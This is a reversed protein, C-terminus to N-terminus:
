SKRFLRRSFHIPLYIASRIAANHWINGAESWQVKKDVCVSTLTPEQGSADFYAALNRLTDFWFKDEAKHGFGLRFSAEYLPDSGRVLAQIQIVTVGGADSADPARGDASASFTIMGAFMHGQPTMFSFSEDDAYIVRVGTSLKAGGPMTLNLVAVEGPRVGQLPGYFNNGKPWFSPFNAKWAAIVQQPTVATDQLRIRYTKQWLQGFGQLPSMPRRGQVNLNMAQDPITGVDLKDVPTAWNAADRPPNPNANESM